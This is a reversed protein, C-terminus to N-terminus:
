KLVKNPIYGLNKKFTNKLDYCWDFLTIDKLVKSGMLYDGRDDRNNLKLFEDIYKFIVSSIYFPNFLNRIEGEITYIDSIIREYFDIKNNFPCNENLIIDKFGDSYLVLMGYSFRKTNGFGDEIIYFALNEIGLGIILGYDSIKAIRKPYDLTIKEM